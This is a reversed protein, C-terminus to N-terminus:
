AILPGCSLVCGTYTGSTRSGSGDDFVGGVGGGGPGYYSM